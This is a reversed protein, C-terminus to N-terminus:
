ADGAMKQKQAQKEYMTQAVEFKEKADIILDLAADDDIQDIAAMLSKVTLEPLQLLPSASTQPPFM